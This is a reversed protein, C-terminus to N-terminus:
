DAIEVQELQIAVNYVANEITQQRTIRGNTIHPYPDKLASGYEQQVLAGLDPYQSPVKALMDAPFEIDLDIGVKPEQGVQELVVVNCGFVQHNPHAAHLGSEVTAFYETDVGLKKLNAHRNMAGEYSEEISMPQQAVGTEVKAGDIRVRLGARRMARSIATHKIPSQTSMYVLPLAELYRDINAIDGELVIPYMGRIEATYSVEPVPNLLFVELGHAYAYTIEMLTNGGIYDAVGNKDHNVVLIADSTDIKAFHENIFGRKLVADEDLNDSYTHGEVVNPKEVDYGRLELQQKIVAMESDFKMSGCITIKM